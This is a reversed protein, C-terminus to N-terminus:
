CYVDCYEVAYWDADLYVTSTIIKSTTDGVSVTLVCYKGKNKYFKKRDIIRGTCSEANNM